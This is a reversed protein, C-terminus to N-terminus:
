ELLPVVSAWQNQKLEKCLSLPTKREADMADKRAGSSLLFQVVKPHGCGAAFHLVSSKNSPVVANVDAQGEQILVRVAALQNYWSAYHLPTWGDDDLSNCKSRICDKPEASNLGM